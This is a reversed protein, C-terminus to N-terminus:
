YQLETNNYTLHSSYDLRFDDQVFWILKSLLKLVNGQERTREIERGWSSAGDDNNNNYICHGTWIFNLLAKLNLLKWGVAAGFM